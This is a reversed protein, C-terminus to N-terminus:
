FGDWNEKSANPLEPKVASRMNREQAWAEISGRHRMGIAPDIKPFGYQEELIKSNKRLWTIDHRLMRAVEAEKVYLAVPSSM